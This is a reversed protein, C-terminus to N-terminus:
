KAWGKATEETQKPIYAKAEALKKAMAEKEEQTPKPRLPAPAQVQPAERLMRRAQVEVKDAFRDEASVLKSAKVLLTITLEKAMERWRPWSNPGIKCGAAVLTKVYSQSREMHWKDADAIESDSGSLIDMEDRAPPESTQRNKSEEIVPNVILSQELPPDSPPKPPGQPPPDMAKRKDIRNKPHQQISLLGGISSKQQHEKAELWSEHGIGHGAIFPAPMDARFVGGQLAYVYGQLWLAKENDTLLQGVSAALTDVNTRVSFIRKM